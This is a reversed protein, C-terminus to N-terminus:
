YLQTIVDAISKLYKEHTNLYNARFEQALNM